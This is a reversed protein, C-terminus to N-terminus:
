NSRDASEINSNQRLSDAANAAKLIELALNSLLGDANDVVVGLMDAAVSQARRFQEAESQMRGPKDQMILFGHKRMTRLAGTIASVQFSKADIEKQNQDM